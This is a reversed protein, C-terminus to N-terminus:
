FPIDQEQPAPDAGQSAPARRDQKSEGAAGAGDGGQGASGQRGGGLMQMSEAVIETTYRDVGKEDQWKRTALRGAIYVSSGKRLYKQAREALHKWLVVRHWETFEDEGRHYTTAISITAVQIGQGVTRVEPDNGLNGVLRVENVSANSM